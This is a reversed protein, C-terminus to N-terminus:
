PTPTLEPLPSGTELGTEGAEPAEGEEPAPEPTPTPEFPPQEVMGLIMDLSYKNVVQPANENVRVYYANETPTLDGVSVQYLTGDQLALAITNAPRNLGYVSPDSGPELSALVRLGALQTVASQARAQDTPGNQPVTVAWMGDADRGLTVAGAQANQVSLSLVQAEDFELLYQAPTSTPLADEQPVQRSQFLAAGALVVIFLALM